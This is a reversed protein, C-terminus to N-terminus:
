EFRYIRSNRCLDSLVNIRQISSLNKNKLYTYVMAYENYINTMFIGADDSGLVIPPSVSNDEEFWRLLHHENLDTYHSIRVNSTPLSEIVINKKRLYKLLLNQIELYDDKSFLETLRIEVPYDYGNRFCCKYGDHIGGKNECSKNCKIFYRQCIRRDSLSPRHYIDMFYKVRRIREKIHNKEIFSETDFLRNSNDFLYESPSYKRLLWAETLTEMCIQHHETNDDFKNQNNYISVAYKMIEIDIRPLLEYKTKNDLLLKRVFLLNDLWEGQKIICKNEMQRIWYEPNVASAIGHGIRDGNSLELFEVSEYMARLGSLLHVYDEGAHYTFHSIGNKRLYRYLPAFVEPPTHLENSCADVGVIKINSPLHQLTKILSRGKRILSERLNLHRYESKINKDECKIFHAVLAISSSTGSVKQFRDWGKRIKNILRINDEIKDKPAFRGELHAINRQQNGMLQHFRIEYEKESVWRLGNYTIKQFQDFGYQYHQQVCLRHILGLSLLYQHFYEIYSKRTPNNRLLTFMGTLLMLEPIIAGNPNLYANGPTLVKFMPHYSRHLIKMTEEKDTNSHRNENLVYYCIKTRLWRAETLIHRYQKKDLGLSEKEWQILAGDEQLGQIFDKYANPINRLQDYWIVSSETSGNLHIHLDHFGGEESCLHNIEPIYPELITTYKLQPAFWKKLLHLIDTQKEFSIYEKDAIFAAIFIIPPIKIILNQWNTFEELKVYLTNGRQELFRNAADTCSRLILDSINSYQDIRLNKLGHYYSDPKHYDVEREIAVLRRKIQDFSVPKGELYNNLTLQDALLNSIIERM